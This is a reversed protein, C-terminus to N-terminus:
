SRASALIRFLYEDGWSGKFFEAKRVVEVLEFGLRRVLRISRDNRTDIRAEASDVDGRSFLWALLAGVAESAFGKGWFQPGLLYAVSARRRGIDTTAQLTGIYDECSKLCVAWNLFLTGSFPAPGKLYRGFRAELDEVSAPPDESIFTYVRPDRLAPFLKAAHATRLSEVRLRPSEFAIPSARAERVM